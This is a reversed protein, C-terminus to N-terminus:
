LVVHSRDSKNGCVNVLTDNPTVATVSVLRADCDRKLTITPDTVINGNIDLSLVCIGDTPAIQGATGTPDAVAGDSMYMANATGVFLLPLAMAFVALWLMFNKKLYM